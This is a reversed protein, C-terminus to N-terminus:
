ECDTHGQALEDLTWRLKRAIASIAGHEPDNRGPRLQERLKELPVDNRGGIDLLYLIVTVIKIM